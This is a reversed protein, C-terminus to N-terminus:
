NVEKKLQHHTTNQLRQEVMNLEHMKIDYQRKLENFKRATKDINAIRTDIDRYTQEKQNLEKQIDKLENLKLLISSSKAAAGGSLVGSPDFTDGQLTICKKMINPHYAVEKAVKMDKCIFINGFIWQMAPRTEEPFEILSLAPKVNESGVLNQAFDVVRRDMPRGSVKNLPVITIRTQLQGHSLLKKGTMENDVM